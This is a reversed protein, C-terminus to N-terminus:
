GPRHGAPRPGRRDGPCPRSARCTTVAGTAGDILAPHDAHREVHEFVYDTLPVDPIDLAPFPSTIVM